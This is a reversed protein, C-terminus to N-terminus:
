AIWDIAGLIVTVVAAGFGCWMVSRIGPPRPQRLENGFFALMVVGFMAGRPEGLLDPGGFVMVAGLVTLSVMMAVLVARVRDSSTITM